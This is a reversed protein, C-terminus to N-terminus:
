DPFVKNYTQVYEEPFHAKLWACRWAILTYSVSHSKNFAWCGDEFLREYLAEMAEKSHGLNIGGEIFKDRVDENTLNRMGVLKRFKLVDADSLGMHKGIMMLQEQYAPIGYTEALIPDLEQMEYTVIEEGRKRALYQPIEDMPGPRYIANLLVLDSFTDPRFEKLLKRLNESQFMFIDSTDGSVFVEMTKEDTLPINKIDVDFPYRCNIIDLTQKIVDLIRLPIFYM